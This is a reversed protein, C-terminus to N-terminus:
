IAFNDYRLIVVATCLATICIIPGYLMNAVDTPDSSCSAMTLSLGMDSVVRGLTSAETAVLGSNFTGSALKPSYLKTLLAMLVGECNILSVFFVISAVIYRAETYPVFPIQVLLLGAGCVSVLFLVLLYRDDKDKCMMNILVGCPLVLGALSAMFYGALDPAWGFYLATLPTVSSVALEQSAKNIFTSFIILLIEWTIGDPLKLEWLFSLPGRRSTSAKKELKRLLAAAGEVRARRADTTSMASSISGYSTIRSDMGQDREEGLLLEVESAIVVAQEKEHVQSLMKPSLGQAFDNRDGRGVLDSEPSSPESEQTEAQVAQGVRTGGADSGDDDDLVLALSSGSTHDALSLDRGVSKQRLFTQTRKWRSPSMRPTISKVPDDFNNYCILAMVSWLAFMIWGPATVNEFVVLPVDGVQWIFHLDLTFILASILPGAAMGLAGARVFDNSAQTRYKMGVTDAIFRRCVGRTAGLGVTLRGTILMWPAGCQLACAYMLNGVVNLECGVLLPARFTANSWESYIVATVLASLPALGIIVGSLNPDCGLLSAYHGSTPAIVYMNVMYLCTIGLNVLLGSSRYSTHKRPTSVTPSSCTPTDTEGRNSLDLSVVGGDSDIEDGSDSDDSDSDEDRSTRRHLDRVRNELAMESHLASYEGLTKAQQVSVRETAINIKSLIPEIDSISRTRSNLGSGLGTEQQAVIAHVDPVSLSKRGMGEMDGVAGGGSGLGVRSVPLAHSITSLDATSRLIGLGIAPGKRLSVGSLSAVDSYSLSLSQKAEYLDELGRRLAGVIARLGEQHYLQLLQSHKASSSLRADFYMESMKLEFHQDHKRLIKRLGVVNIRLYELLALVESALSLYKGRMAELWQLSGASSSSSSPSLATSGLKLAEVQESRLSAVAKALSGQRRLFFLVVKEIEGDLVEAFTRQEGTLSRTSIAKRLGFEKKVAMLRATLGEYDLYFFAWSERPDSYVKTKITLRSSSSSYEGM